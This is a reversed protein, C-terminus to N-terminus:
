WLDLSDLWLLIYLRGRHRACGSESRCDTEELVGYLILEEVLLMPCGGDCLLIHLCSTLRLLQRFIVTLVDM